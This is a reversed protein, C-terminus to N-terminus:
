IGGAQQSQQSICLTFNTNQITLQGSSGGITAEITGGIQTTSDDSTTINMLCNSISIQTSTATGSIIYGSRANENITFIIKNFSLTGATLQIKGDGEINLISKIDTVTGSETLSNSIQSEEGDQNITILDILKYGDVIGIKKLISDGARIISYDITLCPWQLHGCFINNNGNPTSDSNSVHYIQLNIDTYVYYLPIALSTQAGNFGMLNNLDAKEYEDSEAGIKTKTLSTDTHIPVTTRLNYANIFLSKGYKADCGSYSVGSLDFLLEGGDSIQLYIAGGCGTSSDVKCDTFTSSSITIQGNDSGLYGEIVGGKQNDGTRQINEFQSGSISVIGENTGEDVKIVSREQLIMNIISLNTISLIGYEVEVLGTSISSSATTTAM